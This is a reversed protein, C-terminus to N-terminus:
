RDFRHLDYREIVGILKEAYSRDTAYGISKLGYAWKRYDSGHRKLRAYRGRSLMKSHDRWSDWPNTYKRFFDKHTDDTHNTCHGKKCNRAFCKMGFHNNNNVALKSTGARSEILGQALSISAPIGFAAQEKQAIPAYREIYAKAEQAFLEKGSVPAADNKTKYKAKQAKPAAKPRGEDTEFISAGELEEPAMPASDDKDFVFVFYGMACLLAAKLLNRRTFAVGFRYRLNAWSPRLRVWIQQLLDGMGPAERHDYARVPTHRGKSRQGSGKRAPAPVAPRRELGEQEHEFMTKGLSM